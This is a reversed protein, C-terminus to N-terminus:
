WWSAAVASPEQTVCVLDPPAASVYNILVLVVSVFLSAASFYSLLGILFTVKALSPAMWLVAERNVQASTIKEGLVVEVIVHANLCTRRFMNFAIFQNITPYLTM